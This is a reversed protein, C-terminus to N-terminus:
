GSTPPTGVWTSGDPGFEKKWIPARSKLEDIVYRCAEFAEARHPTSVAVIVSVEGIELQGTRHQVAIKRVPWREEAEACITDIVDGAMEPYADYSLHDTTHGESNDRVVGLFVAVGGCDPASVADICADVSLLRDLIEIRTEASSAGGSMPQLLALEDQDRLPESRNVVKRNRAFTTFSATEGLAPYQRVLEDFVQEVSSGDPVELHVEPQGTRERHSAFMKVVVDMSSDILVSTAYAASHTAYPM